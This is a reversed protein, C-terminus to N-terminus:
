TNNAKLSVYSFRPKAKAAIVSIKEGSKAYKSTGFIQSTLYISYSFIEPPHGMNLNATKAM